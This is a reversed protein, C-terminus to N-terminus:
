QIIRDTTYVKVIKEGELSNNLKEQIANEVLQLGKEGALKEQNLQSLIKIIISQTQFRTKELTEKTEPSDAEIAFRIKIMGGGDLNTTIVETEVTREVLEAASAVKGSEKQSSPETKLMHWVTFSGVGLLAISVIIIISKQFLNM